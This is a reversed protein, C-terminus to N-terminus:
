ELFNWNTTHGLIIKEFMSPGFRDLLRVHIIVQSVVGSSQCSNRTKLHRVVADRRLDDLPHQAHRPLEKVQRLRLPQLAVGVVRLLRDPQGRAEVDARLLHVVPAVEQAQM